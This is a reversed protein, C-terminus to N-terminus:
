TGKVEYTETAKVTKAALVPHLPLFFKQIPLFVTLFDSINQKQAPSGALGGRATRKLGPTTFPTGGRCKVHKRRDCCVAQKVDAEVV